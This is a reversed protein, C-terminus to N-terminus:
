PPLNPGALPPMAEFLTMVEQAAFLRENAGRGVQTVIGADGLRQIGTKMAQFSVKYGTFELADRVTFSPKTLVWPVLDHVVGHSRVSKTAARWRAHIAALKDLRDLNARATQM